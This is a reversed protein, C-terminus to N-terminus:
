FRVGTLFGAWGQFITGSKSTTEYWTYPALEYGTKGTEPDVVTSTMLNLTGGAFLSFHKALRWDLTLRVQNLLNLGHILHRGKGLHISLAELNLDFRRGLGINTGVGYGLGWIHRDPNDGWRMGYYFVNYFPRSGLKLAASGWLTESAALELHNYGRRVLNLMGITAGGVTDAMNILGWQSGDVRGAVNFAGVQAKSVERAFNWTTAVQWAVKGTSFNGVGGIQTSGPAGIGGAFNFVGALQKGRLEEGTVNTVFALQAGSMQRAGNAVGGFQRGRAIGMTINLGGSLQVGRMNGEVVNSLGSAQLGKVDGGETINLLLSWETGEVGGSMGALLNVSYLNTLDGSEFGNTGFPPFVSAQFFRKNKPLGTNLSDLFSRAVRRSLVTEDPQSLVISQNKVTQEDVRVEIPTLERSGIPLVEIEPRQYDMKGSSKEWPDRIPKNPDYKLVIQKGIPSYAVHTEAFLDDLVERLPTRERHVNVRHTLPIHDSSYSFQVAYRRQLDNVRAKAAHPRIPCRVLRSLDEPQAHAMLVHGFITIMLISFYRM